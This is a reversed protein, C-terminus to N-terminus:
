LIKSGYKGYQINYIYLKLTSLEFAPATNAVASEKDVPKAIM